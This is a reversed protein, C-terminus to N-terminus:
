LKRVFVEAIEYGVAAGGAEFRAIAHRLRAPSGKGEWPTAAGIARLGRLFALGDAHAESLHYTEIAVETGSPCLDRLADADPYARTLGSLGAEALASTWEAFSGAGLTSFGLWGGPALTAVMRAIAGGPHEFWQFALSSAILGWGGAPPVGPHEGDVVAYSLGPRKGLRARARDVMSPAIDSLTLALDPFAELLAESLFGTGCGIELAPLEHDIPLGALRGALRNAVVLQIRANADYAQAGDFASTIRSKRSEPM